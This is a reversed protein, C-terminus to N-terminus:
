ATSSSDRIRSTRRQSSGHYEALIMVEKLRESSRQQHNGNGLTQRLLSIKKMVFGRREFIRGLILDVPIVVGRYASDAVVFAAKAGVRLRQTCQEVVRDIDVFYGNIMQPIRGCWLGTNDIERIKQQLLPIDLSSSSEWAVQVHSRVTAFRLNRLESANRAEKLLLLEPRYIDTYDFSNLYPPSTLVGDYLGDGKSHAMPQRADARVVTARGKLKPCAAIDDAFRVVQAAFSDDLASADFGLRHWNRKYRWCKGDKRANAVDEISSMLALLLLNRASISEIRAIATRLQEFRRAVSKNLLWKVLGPREVLTTYNPLTFAAARDRNKLCQLAIAELNRVDAYNRTKVKALFAMFPNTEIGHVDHGLRAGEVATTGSGLFPDLLQGCRDAPMYDNIFSQVLGASFAEKFRYWRHRPLDVNPAYDPRAAVPTFGSGAAETPQLATERLRNM